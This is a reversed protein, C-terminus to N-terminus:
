NEFRISDDEDNESLILVQVEQDTLNQAYHFEAKNPLFSFLGGVGLLTEKEGEYVHLEGSLVILLEMKHSHSHPASLRRKPALTEYYLRFSKFGLYSALDISESYLEGTKKSQLQKKSFNALNLNM